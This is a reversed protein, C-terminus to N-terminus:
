LKSLKDDRITAAAPDCLDHSKVAKQLIPLKPLSHYM